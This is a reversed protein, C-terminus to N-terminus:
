SGEPGEVLQRVSEVEAYQLLALYGISVGTKIKAIDQPTGEYGLEILRDLHHLAEAMNPYKDSLGGLFDMASLPNRALNSLLTGATIGFRRPDISQIGRELDTAM